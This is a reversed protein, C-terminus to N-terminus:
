PWGGGRRARRARDPRAAGVATRSMTVLDARAACPHEGAAHPNGQGCTVPPRTWARREGAQVARIPWKATKGTEPVLAENWEKITWSRVVGHRVFPDGRVFEEAAERTTFIGMAGDRLKARAEDPAAAQYMGAVLRGQRRGHEGTWIV